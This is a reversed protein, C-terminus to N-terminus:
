HGVKSPHKMEDQIKQVASMLSATLRAEDAVSNVSGCELDRTASNILSTMQGYSLPQKFAAVIDQVVTIAKSRAAIPSYMPM